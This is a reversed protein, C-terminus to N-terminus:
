ELSVTLENLGAALAQELVALAVEAGGTRYPNEL